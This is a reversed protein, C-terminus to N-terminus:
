PSLTKDRVGYGPSFPVTLRWLRALEAPSRIEVPGHEGESDEVVIAGDELIVRRFVPRGFGQHSGVFETADFRLMRAQARDELRFPALLRAPEDAGSRPVFHALASRYANRADLDATYVFSGPDRAWAVGDIEIEVALQDNHAHGGRGQQGISGCRIAVFARPGKWLFLGFDPYAVPVM